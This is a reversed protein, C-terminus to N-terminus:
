RFWLYSYSDFLLGIGEELEEVGEPTDDDEEDEVEDDDAEDEAEDEDLDNDGNEEKKQKKPEERKEQFVLWSSHFTFLFIRPRPNKENILPENLINQFEDVTVHIWNNTWWSRWTSVLSPNVPITTYAGMSALRPKGPM